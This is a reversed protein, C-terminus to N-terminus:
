VRVMWVEMDGDSDWAGAVIKIYIGKRIGGEYRLRWTVMRNWLSAGTISDM